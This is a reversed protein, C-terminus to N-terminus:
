PSMALASRSPLNNPSQPNDEGGQGSKGKLLLSAPQRHGGLVLSRTGLHVWTWPLHLQEM